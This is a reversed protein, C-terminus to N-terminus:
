DRRLAASLRWLSRSAAISLSRLSAASRRKRKILASEAVPASLVSFTNRPKAFRTGLPKKRIQTSDESPM